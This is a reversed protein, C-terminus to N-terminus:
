MHLWKTSGCRGHLNGAQCRSPKNFVWIAECLRKVCRLWDGYSIMAGKARASLTKITSDKALSAAHGDELTGVVGHGLAQVPLAAAM